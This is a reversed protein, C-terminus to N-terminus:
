RSYPRDLLPRAAPAKDIMRERIFRNLPTEVWRYFLLCSGLAASLCVAIAWPAGITEPAHAARALKFAISLAPLSVLLISYSADGMAALPKLLRREKDRRAAIGILLMASGATHAFDGLPITGLAHRMVWLAVYAAAGGAIWWASRKIDFRRVLVAVMMGIVFQLHYPAFLFQLLENEKIDILGAMHLAIITMWSSYIAVLVNEKILFALSYVAYFLVIYSLSWAVGLIPGHSQPWLLLSRVIASPEREFGLGFSPIMFYVPIVAATVLWYLPYIRSFRKLLFTGFAQPKGWDRRYIAVMLYGTLVFFFTYAGSRGMGSVGLFDYGFYRQGTQSAHFLMVLFVAAGRSAQILQINSNRKM